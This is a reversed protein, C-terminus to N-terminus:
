SNNMMLNQLLFDLIRSCFLSVSTLLLVFTERKEPIVPLKFLNSSVARRRLLQEQSNSRFIEASVDLTM